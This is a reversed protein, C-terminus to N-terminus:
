LDTMRGCRSCELLGDDNWHFALPCSNDECRERLARIATQIDADQEFAADLIDDAYEGM